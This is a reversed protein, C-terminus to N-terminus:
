RQETRDLAEPKSPTNFHRTLFTIASLPYFIGGGGGLESCFPLHKLRLFYGQAFVIKKDTGRGPIKKRCLKKDATHTAPPSRGGSGGTLSSWNVFLNSLKDVFILSKLYFELMKLLFKLVM